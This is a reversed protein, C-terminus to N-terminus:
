NHIVVILVLIMADMMAKWPATSFRSTEVLFANFMNEFQQISSAGQGQSMFFTYAPSNEVCSKTHQLTTEHSYQALYRIQCICLYYFCVICLEDIGISDIAPQVLSQIDSYERSHGYYAAHTKSFTSGISDSELEDATFQPIAEKLFKYKGVGISDINAQHAYPVYESPSVPPVGGSVLDEGTPIEKEVLCNELEEEEEENLLDNNLRQCEEITAFTSAM